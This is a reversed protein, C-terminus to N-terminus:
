NKLFSYKQSLLKPNIMELLSRMKEDRKIASEILKERNEPKEAALNLLTIFVDIDFPKPVHWDANAYEFSRKRYKEEAMISFMVIPINKTNEQAKLKRAVEWGDLDSMMVDLLIIDPQESGAMELGRRGTTARIVGFGHASLLKVVVKMLDPEDDVFLIKKM